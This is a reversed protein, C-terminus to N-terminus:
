YTWYYALVSYDQLNLKGDGTIDQELSIERILEENQPLEGQPLEGEVLQMAQTLQAQRILVFVDAQNVRCDQNKDVFALNPCLHALSKKIEKAPMTGETQVPMVAPQSLSQVQGGDVRDPNKSEGMLWAVSAELVNKVKEKATEMFTESAVPALDVASSAEEAVEAELEAAIEPEAVEVELPEPELGKSEM